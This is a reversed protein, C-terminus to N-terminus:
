TVNGHEDHDDNAGSHGGGGGSGGHGGNGDNIVDISRPKCFKRKPLFSLLM